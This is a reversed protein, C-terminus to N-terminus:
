EVRMSRFNFFYRVRRLQRTLSNLYFNEFFVEGNILNSLFLTIQICNWLLQVVDNAFFM